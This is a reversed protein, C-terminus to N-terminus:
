ISNVLIAVPSSADNTGASPDWEQFTLGSFDDADRHMWIEVVLTRDGYYRTGKYLNTSYFM